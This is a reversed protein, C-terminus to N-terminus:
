DFAGFWGTSEYGKIGAEALTPVDPLAALRQDSTVALARVEKSPFSALTLVLATFM